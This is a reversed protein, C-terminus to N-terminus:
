VDFNSLDIDFDPPRTDNNYESRFISWQYSIADVKRNVGEFLGNYQDVVSNVVERHVASQITLLNLRYKELFLAITAKFADEVANKDVTDSMNIEVAVSNNEWNLDYFRADGVIEDRVLVVYYETLYEWSLRKKIDYHDKITKIDRQLSSTIDHERYFKLFDEQDINHIAEFRTDNKEVYTPFPEQTGFSDTKVNNMRVSSTKCVM